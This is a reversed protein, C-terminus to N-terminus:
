NEGFDEKETCYRNNRWSDSCDLEFGSIELYLAGRAECEVADNKWTTFMEQELAKTGEFLSDATEQGWMAQLLSM